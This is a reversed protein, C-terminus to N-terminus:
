HRATQKLYAILDGREQAKGVRFDMDNGPVAADPDSLWRNLTDENWVLGAKRLAQSYAFGPVTGSTRGYVARLRPGERDADLAHCGACRRDFVEKGREVDGAAGAEAGTDAPAMEHAWRALMQVEADTVSSNWHVLRYQAVPMEGSRTKQVMKAAFAQQEAASYADWHSLNMAKRGEVIDRELLWSVPAFRGYVPAESRMSHCDACKATLVARVESPMAAHEMPATGAGYLGADGFPHVRALLASSVLAIAGVAILRKM